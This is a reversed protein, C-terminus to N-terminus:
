SNLLCCLIGAMLAPIRWYFQIEEEPRLFSSPPQKESFVAVTSPLATNTTVM